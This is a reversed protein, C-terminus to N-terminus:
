ENSEIKVGNSDYEVKEEMKIIKEISSDNM